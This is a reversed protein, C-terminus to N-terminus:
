LRSREGAAELDGLTFDAPVKFEVGEAERGSGVAGRGAAEVEALVVRQQHDFIGGTAEALEPDVM